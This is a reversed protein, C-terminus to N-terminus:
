STLLIMIIATNHTNENIILHHVNQLRDGLSLKVETCTFTIWCINDFKQMTDSKEMYKELFVLTNTVRM